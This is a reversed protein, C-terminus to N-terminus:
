ERIIVLAMKFNTIAKVAHPINAPLMMMQGASVYYPAGVLLVEATGELVIFPIDYPSSHEALGEGQSYALLTFTGIRKNLVVKSVVSGPEYQVLDTLTQVMDSM